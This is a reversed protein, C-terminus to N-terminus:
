SKAGSRKRFEIELVSKGKVFLRAVRGALRDTGRGDGGDGVVQPYWEGGDLIKTPETWGAPDDIRPNLSIYVGDQGFRSDGM